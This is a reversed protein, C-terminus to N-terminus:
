PFLPWFVLWAKLASVWDPLLTLPDSTVMWDPRSATTRELMTMASWFRVTM